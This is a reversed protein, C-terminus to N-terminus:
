AREGAFEDAISYALEAARGSGRLGRIELAAARMIMYAVVTPDNECHHDILGAVSKSIESYASTPHSM